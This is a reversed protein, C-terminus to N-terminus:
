VPSEVPPNADDDGDKNHLKASSKKCPQCDLSLEVTRQAVHVHFANTWDGVTRPSPFVGQSSSSVEPIRLLHVHMKFFPVCHVIHSGAQQSMLHIYRAFLNLLSLHTLRCTCILTM